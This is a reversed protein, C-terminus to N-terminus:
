GTMDKPLFQRIIQVQMWRGVIGHGCQGHVQAAQNRVLSGRKEM